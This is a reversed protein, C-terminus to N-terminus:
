LVIFMGALQDLLDQESTETEAAESDAFEDNTLANLDAAVVSTIPTPGTEERSSQRDDAHAQENTQIAFASGTAVWALSEGTAVSHSGAASEAVFSNAVASSHSPASPNSTPASDEVITPLDDQGQSSSSSSTISMSWNVLKGTDNKVADYVTLTWTGYADLGNLTALSGEPRFTGNFPAAANIISTSANADFTTSRFDNASGGRRNVLLVEKGQPSVLKIVLDSDYTHEIYLTVKLNSINIHQGVTITSTTTQYDRIALNVAGSSYSSVTTLTRSATYKDATEGVVGNRNQDMQRNYTDRIDPGVSTTYTGAMNQAAFTVDFQKNNSGAVATVGTVAITQGTPGTLVVDGATFTSANMSASFTLRVKNLTYNTSGSFTAATVYATPTNPPTTAASSQIAKGVNLIGNAVKGSLSSAATTNTLLSNIVQSYTWTPNQSWVLAAAGAVYPAAMSTGSMTAYRGNSYTSMISSGPAAIDVTGAGYNSYSALKNSSDTAAVTIVNSYNFSAPYYPSSDVNTGSNGAANVVIVGKSQAYQLATALSQDYGGGGWSNNIIKAGNNVAYYIANVASSTYGSGTSTMFKLSMIQVNWNVGAVGRSNNSVAGIIGAVHTGHGNDDLPSSTSNTFNFGYYDDVFGNGDDDRGNGAIEDTNKWINAALDPHTYDVGTDIVAVVIQSSGVTYDWATTAGIANLAWQQSSYTDNVTKTSQILADAQAFDVGAQDRYWALADAVSVGEDLQISYTNNGLAQTSAAFSATVPTDDLWRVMIRDTAFSEQEDSTTTVVSSLLERSELEELNLQVNRFIASASLQTRRSEATGNCLAAIAKRIIRTATNSM